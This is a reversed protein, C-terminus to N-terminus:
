SLLSSLLATESEEIGNIMKRLSLVTKLIDETNRAYFYGFENYCIPEGNKRLKRICNRVEDEKLRFIRQLEKNSVPNDSGCHFERIFVLLKEKNSLKRKM